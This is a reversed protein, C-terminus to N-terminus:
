QCLAAQNRQSYHRRWPHHLPQLRVAELQGPSLVRKKKNEDQMHDQEMPQPADPVAVTQATAPGQAMPVGDIMGPDADQPVGPPAVTPVVGSGSPDSRVM